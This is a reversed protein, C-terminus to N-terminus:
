LLILVKFNSHPLKKLVCSYYYYDPIALRILFFAM